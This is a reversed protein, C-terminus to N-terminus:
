LDLAEGYPLYLMAAVLQLPAGNRQSICRRRRYSILRQEAAAAVTGSAIYDVGIFHCLNLPLFVAGKKNAHPLAKIYLVAQSLDPPKIVSQGILPEIRM